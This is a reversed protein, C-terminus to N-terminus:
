LQNQCSFMKQVLGQAIGVTRGLCPLFRSKSGGEKQSGSSAEEWTRALHVTMAPHVPLPQRESRWTHHSWQSLCMCTPKLIWDILPSVPNSMWSTTCLNVSHFNSSQSEPGAERQEQVKKIIHIRNQRHGEPSLEGEVRGSSDSITNKKEGAQYVPLSPSM